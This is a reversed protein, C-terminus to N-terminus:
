SGDEWNEQALGVLQDTDISYRTMESWVPDINTHSPSM